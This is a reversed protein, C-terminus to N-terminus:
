LVVIFSQAAFEGGPAATWLSTSIRLNPLAQLPQFTPNLCSQWSTISCLWVAPPMWQEGTIRVQGTRQTLMDLWLRGLIVRPEYEGSCSVDLTWGM